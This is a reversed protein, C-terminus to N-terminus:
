PIHFVESCEFGARAVVKARQGEMGNVALLPFHEVGVALSRPVRVQGIREDNGFTDGLEVIDGALGALIPIQHRHGLIVFKVVCFKSTRGTTALWQLQSTCRSTSPLERKKGRNVSASMYASPTVYQSARESGARSNQSM